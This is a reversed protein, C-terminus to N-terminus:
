RGALVMAQAVIALIVIHFVQDHVVPLWPHDPVKAIHCGWWKVFNRRDLIIHAGAVFLLAAVTVWAPVSHTVAYRVVVVTIPVMYVAVHRLLWSWDEEKRMAMNYTQLLFDGILHCVLLWDFLSM